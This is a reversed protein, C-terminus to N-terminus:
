ESKQVVDAIPKIKRLLESEMDSKSIFQTAGIKLTEIMTKPDDQSTLFIVPIKKTHDKNQLAQAFKIGDLQPMNIDTIILDPSTKNLTMLAKLGNEAEIIECELSALLRKVRMRMIQQDDVILILM